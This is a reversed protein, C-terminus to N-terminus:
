AMYIQVYVGIWQVLAGFLVFFHWVFHAAPKHLAYPIIGVSYIVGGGLICGIFLYDGRAFMVPLLMLGSWGLILYLAIRMGRFAGPGFVGVLTVGFIIACWQVVFFSYGFGGGVYSLLIPAFTAGILLYICAYDFRRFVRKVTTGHAFSHYLCSMTFMVFLGTGYIVAGAIQAGGKASIIMLIMAVASLAAGIGHTVSNGVEELASRKPPDNPDNMVLNTKKM